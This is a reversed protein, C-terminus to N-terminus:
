FRLNNFENKQYESGNNTFKVGLPSTFLFLSPQNQRTLVLFAFYSLIDFNVLCLFLASSFRESFSLFLDYFCHLCIIIKMNCMGDIYCTGHGLSVISLHNGSEDKSVISANWTNLKESISSFEQEPVTLRLRM